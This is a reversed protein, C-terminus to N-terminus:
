VITGGLKEALWDAVLPGAKYRINSLSHIGEEFLIFQKDESSAEDVIKKGHEWPVIPDQKGHVVFLPCTIQGAIGELTFKKAYEYAEEKTKSGSYYIFAEQSVPPRSDLMFSEAYDYEGCSGAVATIRPEFAASRPAYYGGMSMGYMGIRSADVDERTELYDIAASATVEYDPRNKM